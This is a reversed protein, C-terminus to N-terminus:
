YEEFNEARFCTEEVIEESGHYFIRSNKLSKGLLM